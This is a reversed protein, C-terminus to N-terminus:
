AKRLLESLKALNAAIRRAQDRTLLSPQQDGDRSMRSISTLSRRM